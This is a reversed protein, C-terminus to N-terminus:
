GILPMLLVGKGTNEPAQMRQLLQQTPNRKKKSYPLKTQKSPKLMQKPTQKIM